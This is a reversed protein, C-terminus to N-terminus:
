RPRLPFQSLGSLEDLSFSDFSVESGRPQAQFREIRFTVEQTEVSVVTLQTEGIQLMDGVVLELMM